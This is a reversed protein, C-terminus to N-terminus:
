QGVPQIWKVALTPTLPRAHGLPPAAGVAVAADIEIGVEDAGRREVDVVHDDVFDTVEFVGVM